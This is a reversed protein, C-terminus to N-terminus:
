SRVSSRRRSGLGGDRSDGWSVFDDAEIVPADALAALARAFTSKGSGSPGDVGVLRIGAVATRRRIERLVEEVFGVSGLRSLAEILRM